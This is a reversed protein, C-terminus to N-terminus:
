LSILSLARETVGPLIQKYHQEIMRVSTGAVEAVTVLDAGATVLDTITSHRITYLTTKKDLKAFVVAAQMADRWAYRDWAVGNSRVFLPEARPREDTLKILLAALSKPVRIPRADHGKDVGVMLVGTRRDFSGVTLAALAGPRVPLQCLARLLNALDPAAREILRLRQPVTLYLDRSVTPTKIVKLKQRWAFDTTALGDALAQNLAARFPTVDRNLTQVSRPKGRNTGSTSPRKALNALWTGLIQPTLDRVDRAAFVPDDTVYQKFRREIDDAGKTDGIVRKSEVYTACVQAVTAGKASGGKAVHAFWEEALAKAKDFRKSPALEAFDGMAEFKRRGSSDVIRAVWTGLADSSMRRFGLARGSGLNQWHPERRPELKDRGNVSQLQTSM